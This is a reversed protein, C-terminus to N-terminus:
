WSWSRLIPPKRHWFRDECAVIDPKTLPQTRPNAIIGVGLRLRFNPRFCAVYGRPPQRDHAMQRGEKARAQRTVRLDTNRAVVHDNLGLTDIIAVDPFVWGLVGVLGFAIVPEGRSYSRLDTEGREPLLDLQSIGFVKHEQHRMCVSHAILWEQWDDWKAVAPRIWSPFRPAVPMTLRFTERREEMNHTKDWHTWPIPLACAIFLLLVASVMWDQLPRKEPLYRALQALM